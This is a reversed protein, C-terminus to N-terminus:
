KAGKRGNCKSCLVRLNSPISKGGKAIPIIHDIHLGVEDPMYKGCIKCTYNDRNMILKRLAPTVLKRQNKSNYDNITTSFEISSLQKYRNELWTWNVSCKSNLKSVKYSTKIYNKQRYRTQKRITEFRYAHMDDLTKNYQHKRHRKFISSGIRKECEKKWKRINNEHLCLLDWNKRDCLLKDIYDAIKINRKSTVDFQHTYYPYQFPNRFIHYLVIILMIFCLILVILITLHNKVLEFDINNPLYNM